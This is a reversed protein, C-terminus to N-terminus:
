HSAAPCPLGRSYRLRMPFLEYQLWIGDATKDGSVRRFRGVYSRAIAVKSAPQGSFTADLYSNELLPEATLDVGAALLHGRYQLYRQRASAARDGYKTLTLLNM